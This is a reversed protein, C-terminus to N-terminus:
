IANELRLAQYECVKFNYVAACLFGLLLVMWTLSGLGSLTGILWWAVAIDALLYGILMLAAALNSEKSIIWTAVFFTGWPLAIVVGLWVIAYKITSWINELQEPHKWFWIVSGISAVTLVATLVRGGVFQGIAAFMDTGKRGINVSGTRVM